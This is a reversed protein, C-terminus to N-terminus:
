ESAAPQRRRREFVAWAAKWALFAALAAIPLIGPESLRRIPTGSVIMQRRQFITVTEFLPCAMGWAAIATLILVTSLRFRFWRRKPQANM